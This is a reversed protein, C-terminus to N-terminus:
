LPVPADADLGLLWARTAGVVFISGTVVVTDGATRGELARALADGVRPEVRGAHAAALAELPAARRGAMAIPPECYVRRSALPALLGLMEPWAKDAMAGFVLTTRAPDLDALAAALARAGEENHACDLVVEVGDKRVRELRGPWRVEALGRAMAEVTGLAPLRRSALQALAIAVAANDRQHAGGLAVSPCRITGLPTTVEVGSGLARLSVPEFGVGQGVIWRPAAEVEAIAARAEEPVRGVVLPVGPRTIAAKERAIGGLDTGLLETHDLGISTIATALPADVVNTADLRGGLGVEVIAVDVDAERMAVFGCLTMAEFFTARPLAPDLVRRLARDLAADSIPEGGIRIREALRVLHPSTYLGSRLGAAGAIAELMACTSGKGNTGAVHVVALEEHPDGLLALCNRMRELGLEAGRGARAYLEEIRASLPV